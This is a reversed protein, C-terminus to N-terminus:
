CSSYPNFVGRLHNTLYLFGKTRRLLSIHVKSLHRRYYRLIVTVLRGGGRNYAWLKIHVFFFNRNCSGESIVWGESLQVELPHSKGNHHKVYRRKHKSYNNRVQTEHEWSFYLLVGKIISSTTRTCKSRFTKIYVEKSFNKLDPSIM